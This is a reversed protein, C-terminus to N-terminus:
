ESAAGALHKAVTGPPRGRRPPMDVTDDKPPEPIFDPNIGSLMVLLALCQPHVDIMGGGGQLRDVLKKFKEFTEALKPPIDKHGRIATMLIERAYDDM